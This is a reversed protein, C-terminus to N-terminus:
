LCGKRVSEGGPWRKGGKAGPSTRQHAVRVPWWPLPVRIRPRPVQLRPVQLLSLHVLWVSLLTTWHWHTGVHLLPVYLRWVHVRPVHLVSLPVWSWLLLPLPTPPEHLM